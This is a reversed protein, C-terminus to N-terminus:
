SKEARFTDLASWRSDGEGPPAPNVEDERDKDVALYHPDIECQQPEDALDCTPHHPMELLLEERLAETADVEGENNIELPIAASPLALTKTFPHLTRVCEFEFPCSLSGRLLLENDFSQMHLDFHLPGLPKPDREGLDFLEPALDGELQKGDEPLTALTIFLQDM